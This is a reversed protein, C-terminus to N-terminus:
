ICKEHESSHQLSGYALPSYHPLLCALYIACVIDYKTPTIYMEICAQLYDLQFIHSAVTTGLEVM